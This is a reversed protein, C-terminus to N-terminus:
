SIKRLFIKYENNKLKKCTDEFEDDFVINSADETKPDNIKNKNEKFKNKWSFWSSKRQNTIYYKKFIKWENIYSYLFKLFLIYLYTLM